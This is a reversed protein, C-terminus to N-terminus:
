CYFKFFLFRFLGTYSGDTSSVAAQTWLRTAESGMEGERGGPFREAWARAPGRGKVMTEGSEM